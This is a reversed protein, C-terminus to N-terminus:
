GQDDSVELFVPAASYGEPAYALAAKESRYVKVPEKREFYRGKSRTARFPEKTDPHVIAWGIITKIMGKM